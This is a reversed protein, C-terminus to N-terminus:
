YQTATVVFSTGNQTVSQIPRGLGDLYQTTVVSQPTPTQQVFTTDVVANPNASNFRWNPSTSSYTYGYAKVVTSSNNKVQRLRGFTDYTFYRFSGGEDQISQVNGDGDYTLSTVLDVTGSADHVKAVRTLFANNANG